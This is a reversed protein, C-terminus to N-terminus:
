WAKYKKCSSRVMIVRAKRWTKTASDDVTVLGNKHKIFGNDVDIYDAFVFDDYLASLLYGRIAMDGASNPSEINIDSLSAKTFKDFVIENM